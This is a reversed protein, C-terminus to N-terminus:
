GMESFRLECGTFHACYWGGKISQFDSHLRFANSYILLTAFCLPIVPATLWTIENTFTVLFSFYPLSLLAHLSHTLIPSFLQPSLERSTKLSPLLWGGRKLLFFLGQVRFSHTVCLASRAPETLCFAAVHEGSALKPLYRAKQEESGALIIGQCCVRAAKLPPLLSTHSVHKCFM